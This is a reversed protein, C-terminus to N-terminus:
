RDGGTLRLFVDELRHRDARLDGLRAGREALWATVAAVNAPTPAVGAVYEGPASEHVPGGLVAGLAAVDLGPDAAFAIDELGAATRLEAATGDAVVRGHDLIVIRDALREAEDLDHTTLVVTVGDHRLAGILERVALRGEVDVGATPEDLFAVEPRGVLALALSLRRQEGGSLRRFPTSERGTLGVRELLVAPDAPAPYYSAFLRLAELPRIGPHVGGSQLMVGIKPRLAKADAVPDHGLVRVCGAGPRRYGELTEVTTTKGAGNPGLVVITEGAGVSFSVDDVATVDGFRVVLDSVVVAGMSAVNPFGEFDARIAPSGDGAM